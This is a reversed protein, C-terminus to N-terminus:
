LMVKEAKPEPSNKAIDTIPIPPLLALWKIALVSPIVQDDRLTAVSVVQPATPQPGACQKTKLLSSFAAGPHNVVLKLVFPVEHVLM